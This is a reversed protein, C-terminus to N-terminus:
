FNFFLFLTISASCFFSYIIQSIYWVSTASLATVRLCINTLVYFQSDTSLKGISLRPSFETMWGPRSKSGRKMCVCSTSRHSSYVASLVFLAIRFNTQVRAKVDQWGSLSMEPHIFVTMLWYLNFIRETQFCAFLCVFLCVSFLVRNESTM